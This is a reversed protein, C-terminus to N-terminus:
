WSPMPKSRSRNRCRGVQLALDVNLIADTTLQIGTHKEPRFGEATATVEYTSAPLLPFAFTGNDVTVTERKEGTLTNVLVIKAGVVAADKADHVYGTLRGQGNQAFCLAAGLLVCILAWCRIIYRQSAISPM